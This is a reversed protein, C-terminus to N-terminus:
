LSTEIKKKRCMMKTTPNKIWRDLDYTAGMLNGMFFNDNYPTKEIWEKWAGNCLQSFVKHIYLYSLFIYAYISKCTFQKKNLM